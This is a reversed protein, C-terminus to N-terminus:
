QDQFGVVCIVLDRAAPDDKLFAALRVHVLDDIATFPDFVIRLTPVYNIISISAHPHICVSSLPRIKNM